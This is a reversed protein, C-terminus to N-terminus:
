GASRLRAIKARAAEMASAPDARHAANASAETQQPGVGFGFVIADGDFRIETPRLNESQDLASVLQRIAAKM